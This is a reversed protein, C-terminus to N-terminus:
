DRGIQAIGSKVVTNEVEIKRIIHMKRSQKIVVKTCDLVSYKNIVKLAIKQEMKFSMDRGGFQKTWAM